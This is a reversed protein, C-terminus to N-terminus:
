HLPLTYFFLFRDILQSKGALNTFSITSKFLDTDAGQFM